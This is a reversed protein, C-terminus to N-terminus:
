WFIILCFVFIDIERVLILPTFNKLTPSFYTGFDPTVSWNWKSPIQQEIHARKASLDIKSDLLL